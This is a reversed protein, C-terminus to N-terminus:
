PPKLITGFLIHWFFFVFFFPIFGFYSAICSWFTSGIQVFGLDLLKAQLRRKIPVFVVVLYPVQLCRLGSFPLAFCCCYDRNLTLVTVLGAGFLCFLLFVIGLLTTLVCVCVRLPTPGFSKFTLSFTLV